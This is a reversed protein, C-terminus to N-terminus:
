WLWGRRRKRCGYFQIYCDDVSDVIANGLVFDRYDFAKTAYTSRMQCVGHEREIRFGARRLKLRLQVPYYELKHEPHIFGGGVTATHIRTIIRNPTDLYLSGGPKLIRSAEQLMLDGDEESLHEISQGSWVLDVSETPIRSLDTMSSFLVGIPGLPTQRIQVDIDRYMADRREPPLDVVTLEKWAHPYGMDYISGNAGGLDVIRDAQPLLSAIMKLRASHICYLHVDIASRLQHRLADNGLSIEAFVQTPTMSGANLGAALADIRAADPNSGVAWRVLHELVTKTTADTV